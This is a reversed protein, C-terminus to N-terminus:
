SYQGKLNRNRNKLSERWKENRMEPLHERVHYPQNTLELNDPSDNGHNRDKHHVIEDSNLIRGLKEEMVLRYRYVYGWANANPHDPRLLMIRGKGDTTQGGKWKPNRNGFRSKSIAIEPSLLGTKRLRQYHGACLGKAAYKRTCGPVSCSPKVYNGWRMTATTLLVGAWGAVITRVCLPSVDPPGPFIIKLNYCTAVM